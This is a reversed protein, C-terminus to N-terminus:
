CNTGNTGADEFVGRFLSGNVAGLLPRYVRHHGTNFVVDEGFIQQPKEHSKPNMWMYSNLNTSRMGYGM